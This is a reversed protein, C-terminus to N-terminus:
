VPQAIGLLAAALLLSWLCLVIPRARSLATAIVAEEAEGARGAALAGFAPGFPALLFRIWLGCAIAAALILLKAKLFVPLPGNPAQLLVAASILGALVLWRVVLDVQRALQGTAQGAAAHGLHLWWVLSLWLLSGGWVLALAVGPVPWWGNLAVLSVGTPLALILASRPAMDLHALMTGAMARVAAPRSRDTLVFSAHFAGLDGGLWYVLVLVHALTALDLAM